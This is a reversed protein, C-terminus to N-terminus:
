LSHRSEYLEKLKNALEPNEKRLEEVIMAEHEIIKAYTEPTVEKIHESVKQRHAILMEYAKPNLNMLKDSLIIRRRIIAREVNSIDAKVGINREELYLELYDLLEDEDYLGIRGFSNDMEINELEIEGGDAIREAMKKAFERLKEETKDGFAWELEAIREGAEVYPVSEKDAEEIPYPKEFGADRLALSITRRVAGREILKMAGYKRLEDNVVSPHETIYLKINKKVLRDYLEVLRDTATIDISGIGRADVIVFRTDDKIATEIDNVFTDINAFFLNGNFRYMLTNKIPRALKNRSMNYFIDHGKVMGLYTRPPDVARVFVTVFSLIMGIVVGYVTGFILVGLFATLFVLFENKNERALRKALKLELIGILAAMVIGTLVPVPLYHLYPTGFLLILLMTLAAILSMRQSKAGYQRAMSTRSVSGNIPPAGCLASLMGAGAYGLIEINNDVKKGSYQNSALLSQAMVVLAITLSTMILETTNEGFHGLQPLIIKPLGSSVAPLMKVGKSAFDFQYSGIAAAVMVIIMVPFKPVIKKFVLIIVVTSLGLVCSLVHFNGFEEIINEVLEFIQGSKASGGYLKPLQMLIITFAIGSIFGGMVPYSIYKVIKGAKLFYFLFLWIATLFAMVPVLIMAEESAAEIALGEMTAGVIAAPMADIGIVFNDTSSVLSFFLIPLLSGYLGYVAPLGAVQAYGMSIPVSVLAVIIGALLDNKLNGGLYRQKFYQLVRGM